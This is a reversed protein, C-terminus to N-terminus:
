GNMLTSYAVVNPVVVREGDYYSSELQELIQEARQIKGCRIWANMVELCNHTYILQLAQHLMFSACSKKGSNLTQANPTSGAKQMGNLIEEAREASAINGKNAYLAILTCYSITDALGRLEMRKVLSEARDIATDDKRSKWAKLVTNYAVANAVGETELKELLDEAKEASGIATSMAYADLLSSHLYADPDIGRSEAQALISEARGIANAERSHVVANIAASYTRVDPKWQFEGSKSKADLTELIDEARKGRGPETSKAWADLLMNYSYLDPACECEEGLERCRDVMRKLVDESQRAQGLRANAGLLVNYDNTIPELESTNIMFDLIESARQIEGVKSHAHMVANYTVRTPAILPNSKGMEEMKRLIREANKASDEHGSKGWADVAVTYHKNCLTLLDNGAEVEKELRELLKEVTTAGDVTETKGWWLLLPFIDEIVEEDLSGPEESENELLLSTLSSLPNVEKIIETAQEPRSSHETTLTVSDFLRPSQRQDSTRVAKSPAFAQSPCSQLLFLLFAIRNLRKMESYSSRRRTPSYHFPEPNLKNDKTTPIEWVVRPFGFLFHPHGHHFLQFPIEKTTSTKHAFVYWLDEYCKSPPLGHFSIV